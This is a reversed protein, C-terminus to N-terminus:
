DITRLWPAALPQRLRHIPLGNPSINMTIEAAQSSGAGPLREVSVIKGVDVGAERVDSPIHLQTPVTFMAKLVFPTPKFPGRGGFVAYSILGIIVIGTLGAALTPFPKRRKM